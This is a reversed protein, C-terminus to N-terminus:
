RYSLFPGAFTMKLSLFTRLAPRAMQFVVFPFPSVTVPPNPFSFKAGPISKNTPLSHGSTNMLIFYPLPPLASPSCLLLRLNSHIPFRSGSSFFENKRFSHSTEHPGGARLHSGPFICFPLSFRESIWTLFDLSFPTLCFLNM